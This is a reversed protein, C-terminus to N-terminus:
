YRVDKRCTPCTVKENCLWKKICSEHFYHECPLYIIDNGNSYNDICINCMEDKYNVINNDDLKVTKFKNIDNQNITVKVDEFNDIPVFQSDFFLGFLNNILNNVPYSDWEVMPHRYQFNSGFGNNINIDYNDNQQERPRRFENEITFNEDERIEMVDSYRNRNQNNTNANQNNRNFNDNPMENTTLYRQLESFHNIINQNIQLIEQVNTRTRNNTFSSLPRSNVIRDVWAEYFDEFFDEM